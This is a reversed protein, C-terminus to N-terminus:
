QCDGLFSVVATWSELSLLFERHDGRRLNVDRAVSLCALLLSAYYFCSPENALVLRARLLTRTGVVNM